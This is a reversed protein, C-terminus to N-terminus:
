IWINGEPLKGKHVTPLGACIEMVCDCNQALFCDIKALGRRFDESESLYKVGDDYLYDSVIVAHRVTHLFRALDAQVRDPAATDMGDASFMENTLLATVSDLLFTAQIDVLPLAAALKRPWELTVFGMGARTARHVRVCAWEHADCPEMTALYYHLGTGSLRLAQQLAFTSKGNKCGGTIFVTM